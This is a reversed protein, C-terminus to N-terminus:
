ESEMLVFLDELERGLAVCIKNATKPSPSRKGNEVRNITGPNLGATDGLARTSFGKKIRAERIEHCRPSIILLANVEKEKKDVSLKTSM